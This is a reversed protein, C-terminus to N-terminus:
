IPILVLRVETVNFNEKEIVQIEMDLESALTIRNVAIGQLILNKFRCVNPSQMKNMLIFVLM